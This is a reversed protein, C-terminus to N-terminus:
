QWVAHGASFLLLPPLGQSGGCNDGHRCAVTSHVTGTHIKGTAATYVRGGNVFVNGLADCVLSFPEQVSCQLAPMFSCPQCVDRQRHRQWPGAVNKGEGNGILTRVTLKDDELDIQRVRHNARDAVLLKGAPTVALHRPKNFLAQDGAGDKFGEQHPVGAITKM